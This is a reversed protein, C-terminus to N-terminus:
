YVDSRGKGFEGSTYSTQRPHRIHRESGKGDIEVGEEGRALLLLPRLQAALGHADHRHHGLGGAADGDAELRLGGAEGAVGAHGVRAFNAGAEDDDLRPGLGVDLIVAGEDFHDHGVQGLRLHLRDVLDSRLEVGEEVARLRFLERLLDLGVDRFFDTGEEATGDADRRGPQQRLDGRVHLLGVSEHDEVVGVDRRFDQMELGTVDGADARVDLAAELFVADRRDGLEVGGVDMLEAADPTAHAALLDPPQQVALIQGVEFVLLALADAVAMGHIKLQTTAPLSSSSVSSSSLASISSPQISAAASSLASSVAPSSSPKSGSSGGGGGGGCGSLAVVVSLWLTYSLSSLKNM